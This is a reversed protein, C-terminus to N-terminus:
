EFEQVVKEADERTIANNVKEQMEINENREANIISKELDKKTEHKTKKMKTTPKALM